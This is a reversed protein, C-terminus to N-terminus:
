KLFKTCILYIEFKFAQKQYSIYKGKKVRMHMMKAADYQGAEQRYMKKIIIERTAM